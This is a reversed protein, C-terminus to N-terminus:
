ILFYVINALKTSICSGERSLDVELCFGYCSQMPIMRVHRHWSNDTPFSDMFILSKLFLWSLM